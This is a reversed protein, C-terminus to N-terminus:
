VLQLVTCYVLIGNGCIDGLSGFLTSSLGNAASDESNCCEQAEECACLLPYDTCDNTCDCYDLAPLGPCLVTAGEMPTDDNQDDDEAKEMVSGSGSRPCGEIITGMAMVLCADATKIFGECPSKCDTPVLFGSDTSYSYSSPGINMDLSIGPFYFFANNVKTNEFTVNYITAGVSDGFYFANEWGPCGCDSPPFTVNHVLINNIDWLVEDAPITSENRGFAAVVPGSEMDLFQCNEIDITVTPSDQDNELEQYVVRVVHGTGTLEQFTCNSIKVNLAQSEISIASRVVEDYLKAKKSSTFTIGEITLNDANVDYLGNQPGPPLGGEVMSATVSAKDPSFILFGEWEYDYDGVITCNSECYVRLNPNMAVLAWGKPKRIDFEPSNVNTFVRYEQNSCLRYSRQSDMPFNPAMGAFGFYELQSILSLDSWCDNGYPPPMEVKSIANLNPDDNNDAANYSSACCEQAEQCECFAPSETCDILCDCYDEEPLGPCLVKNDTENSQATVQHFNTVLWLMLPLLKFAAMDHRRRSYSQPKTSNLIM